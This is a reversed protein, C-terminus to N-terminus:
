LHHWARRGGPRMLHFVWFCPFANLVGLLWLRVVVLSFCPPVKCHVDCVDVFFLIETSSVSTWFGWPRQYVNHPSAGTVTNKEQKPWLLTFRTIVPYKFLAIHSIRGIFHLPCSAFGKWVWATFGGQVIRSERGGRQTAHLGHASITTECSRKPSWM